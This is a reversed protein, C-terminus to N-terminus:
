WVPRTVSRPSVRADKDTGAAVRELKATSTGACPTSLNAMAAAVSVFGANRVGIANMTLTLLSSPSSPSSITKRSDMARESRLRQCSRSISRAAQPPRSTWTANSVSAEVSSGSMKGRQPFGTRVVESSWGPRGFSMRIEISQRLAVLALSLVPPAYVAFMMGMMGTAISEHLFRSTVFLAVAMLAVAGWREARPARSLFVWWLLVLVSGLFAGIMGFPAAEPAVVPVVIRGLWMLTAIVVGPWLRLPKRPTLQDIQTDTM